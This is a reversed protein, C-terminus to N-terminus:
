NQITERISVVNHTHVHEGARIDGTARGITEGYKYVEDGKKIEVVAFKHYIPVNVVIQTTRAEGNIKYVATDGEQLPEVAVAVSDKSEIILANVTLEM